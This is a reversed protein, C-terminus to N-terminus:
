PASNPATSDLMQVQTDPPIKITFEDAPMPRNETVSEVTLVVQIEDVPRKITVKTPYKNAGFDGYNEYFVQTEVDGKSDYIDQQYPLLDDRHFRVVRVLAEERSDPKRRLISLIYEPVSYLHKKTPDEVTVTDSIVTYYEDQNLARVGLADLFFGPRLNELQNESKKEVSNSGEIVKSKSPIYLKWNKGDSVMDFMETRIVPVMGYVRLMEPKRMVIVGPISTYDKATGQSSHLVSAQLDVKASLTDLAAWRQDLRNVLEEPTITQITPPGKPLPLKRTTSLFFCGSLLLPLVSAAVPVALRLGARV